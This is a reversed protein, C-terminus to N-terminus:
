RGAWARAGALAMLRRDPDADLLAEIWQRLDDAEIRNLAQRIGRDFTGALKAQRLATLSRYDNPQGLLVVAATLGLSYADWSPEPTSGDLAQPAMFFPTGSVEPATAEPANLDVALGFDVLVPSGDPRLLVNAPKVDRHVIRADALALLADALQGLVPRVRDPALATSGLDPGQVLELLMVWFDGAPQTDFVRLVNRHRVRGCLMAERAALGRGTVYGTRLVKVAVVRGTATVRGAYVWGQGGGGLYKELVVGPVTVEPHDAPLYSEAITSLLAGPRSTIVDEALAAPGYLEVRGEVDADGRRALEALVDPLPRGLFDAPQFAM